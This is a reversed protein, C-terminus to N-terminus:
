ILNSKLNVIRLHPTDEVSDRSVESGLRVGELEAQRSIPAHRSKECSDIADFGVKRTACLNSVVPGRLAM